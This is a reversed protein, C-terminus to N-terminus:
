ITKNSFLAVLVDSLEPSPQIIIRWALSRDYTEIDLDAKISSTQLNDSSFTLQGIEM